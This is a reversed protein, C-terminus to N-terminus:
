RRRREFFEEGLYIGPEASASDLIFTKNAKLTRKRRGELVVRSTSHLRLKLGVAQLIWTGSHSINGTIRNGALFTYTGNSRFIYTSNSRFRPANSASSKWSGTLEHRTIGRADGEGDEQAVIPASLVLAAGLVLAYSWRNKIRTNM